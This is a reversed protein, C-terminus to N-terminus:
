HKKPPKLNEIGHEKFIRQIEEERQEQFKNDYISFYQLHPLRDIFTYPHLDTLENSSADIYILHTGNVFIEASFEKFKNRSVFLNELRLNHHFANHPFTTLHNLDLCLVELQQCKEFAGFDIWEVEQQTMYLYKTNPFTECITRTLVPIRSFFFYIEEVSSPNDSSPQWDYTPGSISINEFTCVPGHQDCHYVNIAKSARLIIFILIFINFIKM